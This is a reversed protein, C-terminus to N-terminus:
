FRQIHLFCEERPFVGFLFSDRLSLVLFDDRDDDNIDGSLIRGRPNSDFALSGMLTNAEGGRFFMAANYSRDAVAVDIYGDSDIHMVEIDFPEPGIENRTLQTYNGDGLGKMVMLEGAHEPPVWLAEGSILYLDQFQDEDYDELEIAYVIDNQRTVVPFQNIM